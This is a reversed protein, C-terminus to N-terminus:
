GNENPVLDRAFEAGWNEWNRRMFDNLQKDSYSGFRKVVWRARERIQRTYDSELQDLFVLGADTASFIIGASDFIRSALGRSLFLRLGQEVLERRVLLEGSRHPTPPHLSAPGEPVDGSHVILYDYQLLRQVDLPTPSETLAALSRLGSELPTNFARPWSTRRESKM